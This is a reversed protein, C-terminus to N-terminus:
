RGETMLVSSAGAASFCRVPGNPVHRDFVIRDGTTGSGALRLGHDAVANTGDVTCYVINSSDNILGLLRRNFAPRANIAGTTTSATIHYHHAPGFSTQALAAPASFWAATLVPVVNLGVVLLRM